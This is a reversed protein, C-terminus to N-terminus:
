ENIIYYMIIIIKGNEHRRKKDHNRAADSTEIKLYWIEYAEPHKQRIVAVHELAFREADGGAFAVFNM